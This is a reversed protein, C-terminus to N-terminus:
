KKKREEQLIVNKYDIKKNFSVWLSERFTKSEYGYIKEGYMLFYPNIAINIVKGNKIKKIIKYKELFKLHNYLTRRNIYLKESINKLSANKGDLLLLEGKNLELLTILKFFTIKIAEKISSDAFFGIANVSLKYFLVKKLKSYDIKKQDYVVLNSEDDYENLLEGTESDILLKSMCYIGGGRLFFITGIHYQHLCLINEKKM